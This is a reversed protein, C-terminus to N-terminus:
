PWKRRAHVVAVVDILEPTEETVLQYFVLFNRRITLQRFGPARASKAYKKPHAPLAHVKDEIEEKLAQAADISDDSIYEVIEILGDRADPRWELQPRKQM